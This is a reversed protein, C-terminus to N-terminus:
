TGEQAERVSPRSAVIERARRIFSQLWAEDDDDAEGVIRAFDDVFERAESEGPVPRVSLVADTTRDLWEDSASMDAARLVDRVRQRSEGPVPVRAAAFGAMYGHLADDSAPNDEDRKRWEAYSALAQVMLDDSV